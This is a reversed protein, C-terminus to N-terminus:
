VDTGRVQQARERLWYDEHPNDALEAAEELAQAKAENVTPQDALLALVADAIEEARECASCTETDYRPRGYGPHVRKAIEDRTPVTRASSIGPQHLVTFPWIHCDIMGINTFRDQTDDAFQWPYDTTDHKVAVAGSQTRIATGVPLAELGGVTTILAADEALLGADALAQAIEYPRFEGAKHYTEYAVRAAQEVIDTM